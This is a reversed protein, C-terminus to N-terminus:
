TFQFFIDFYRRLQWDFCGFFFLARLCCYGIRSYVNLSCECSFVLNHINMDEHVADNTHENQEHEYRANQLLCVQFTSHCFTRDFLVMNLYISHFKLICDPMSVGRVDARNEAKLSIIILNPIWINLSSILLSLKM